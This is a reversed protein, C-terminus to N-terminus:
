KKATASEGGGLQQKATTNTPDLAIVELFVGRALDGKNQAVENLGLETMFLTDSPYLVLMKRVLKEAEGYKKLNRLAIALRISAYYNGRDSRLIQEALPEANKYREQALMGLLVGLKAGIAKPNARSAQQFDRESKDYEAKLYHLWGTRLNLSYNRPHTKLQATLTDIAKSYDGATEQKLADAIAATVEADNPGALGNTSGLSAAESNFYSDTPYKALNREVVEKAETTKGELRLAVALRINGYYNSPDLEVIQRAVPEAMQYKADAILVLCYGLKAEVSKPATQIAAQYSRESDDYKKAQYFLWGLRVNLTYDNPNEASAPLLASIAKDYDKSTELSASQQLAERVKTDHEASQVFGFLLAATAAFTAALPTM